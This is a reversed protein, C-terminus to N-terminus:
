FLKSALATLVVVGLRTFILLADVPLVGQDLYGHFNGDNGARGLAQVLKLLNQFSRRALILKYKQLPMASLNM